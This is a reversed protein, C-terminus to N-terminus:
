DQQSPLLPRVVLFGAGFATIVIMVIIATLWWGGMDKAQPKSEIRFPKEVETTFLEDTLSPEPSRLRAAVTAAEAVDNSKSRLDIEPYSQSVPEPIPTAQKAPTPADSFQRLSLAAQVIREVDQRMQQNQRTLQQNQANLSDLMAKTAQLEAALERYVSIPVSPAYNSAAPATKASTPNRTAPDSNPNSKMPEFYFKLSYASTKSLIGSWLGFTQGPADGLFVSIL